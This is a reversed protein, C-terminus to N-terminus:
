RLGGQAMIAILGMMTVIFCLMEFVQEPNVEAGGEM